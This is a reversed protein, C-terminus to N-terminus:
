ASNQGTAKQYKNESNLATTQPGELHQSCLLSTAQLGPKVDVHLLFFISQLQKLGCFDWVSCLLPFGPSMQLM